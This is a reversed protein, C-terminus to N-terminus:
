VQTCQQLPPQLPQRCAARRQHAPSSIPFDTRLFRGREESEGYTGCGAVWGRYVQARDIMSTEELLWSSSSCCTGKVQVSHARSACGFVIQPKILVDECTTWGGRVQRQGDREVDVYKGDMHLLDKRDAAVQHQAQQLRKASRVLLRRLATMCMSQGNQVTPAACPAVKTQQM